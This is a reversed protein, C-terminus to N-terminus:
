STHQSDGAGRTMNTDTADANATDVGISDEIPASEWYGGVNGTITTKTAKNLGHSRHDRFCAVIVVTSVVSPM